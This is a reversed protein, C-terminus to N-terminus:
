RCNTDLHTYCSEPLLGNRIWRAVTAGHKRVGTQAESLAFLTLLVLVQKMTLMKM